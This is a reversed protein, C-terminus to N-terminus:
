MMKAGKGKGKGKAVMGGKAMPKGLRAIGGKAMGIVSSQPAMSPAGSPNRRIYGNIGIPHVMGGKAFPLFGGAFKGVDSGVKSGAERQGFLSGGLGGLITGAASGLAEGIWGM